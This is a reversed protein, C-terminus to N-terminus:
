SKRLQEKLKVAPKHAGEVGEQGYMVKFAEKVQKNGFFGIIRHKLIAVDDLSIVKKDVLFGVTDLYYLTRSIGETTERWSEPSEPKFTYTNSDIQYHLGFIAPDDFYRNIVDVLFRGRAQRSSASVQHAVVLLSVFGGVLGFVTLLDGVTVQTSLQVGFM